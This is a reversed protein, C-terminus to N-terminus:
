KVQLKGVEIVAPRFDNTNYGHNTVVVVLNFEGAQPYTYSCYWGENSLTTKLGKAGVLGYDSYQDSKVLIPHNFMDVSDPFTGNVSIKKKMIERTGGPWVSCMDADSDVVIKVSKGKIPQTVLSDKGNADAVYFKVGNMGPTAVIDEKLCSTLLMGAFLGLAIKCFM